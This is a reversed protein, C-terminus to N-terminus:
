REHMRRAYREGPNVLLCLVMMRMNEDLESGKRILQAQTQSFDLRAGDRKGMQKRLQAIVGASHSALERAARTQQMRIHHLAPLEVCLVDTPTDLLLRDHAFTGRSSTSQAPECILQAHWPRVMRKAAINPPEKSRM